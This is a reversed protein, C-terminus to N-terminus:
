LLGPVFRCEQSHLTQTLRDDAVILYLVTELYWEFVFVWGKTWRVVPHM